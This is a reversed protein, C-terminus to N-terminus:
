IKVGGDRKEPEVPGIVQIVRLRTNSNVRPYPHLVTAPIFELSRFFLFLLDPGHKYISVFSLPLLLFKPLSTVPFLCPEGLPRRCDVRQRGSARKWQCFHGDEDAVQQKTPGEEDIRNYTLDPFM